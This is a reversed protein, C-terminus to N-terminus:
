LRPNLLKLAKGILAALWSRPEESGKQPRPRSQHLQSLRELEGADLWSGRCDPCCDIVVDGLTTQILPLGECRPCRRARSSLVAPAKQGRPPLPFSDVLEPRTVLKRLEEGDFWFGECASCFDIILQGQGGAYALLRGSCAVCPLTQLGEGQAPVRLQQFCEPCRFYDGVAPPSLIAGCSPCGPRRAIDVKGLTSM